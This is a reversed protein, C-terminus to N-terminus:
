YENMEKFRV